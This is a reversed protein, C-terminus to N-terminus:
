RDVGASCTLLLSAYPMMLFHAFSGFPNIIQQSWFFHCALTCGANDLVCQPLTTSLVMHCYHMIPNHHIITPCQLVFCFIPNESFISINIMFKHSSKHFIIILEQCFNLGPIKKITFFCRFLYHKRKGNSLTQKGKSFSKPHVLSGKLHKKKKKLEPSPGPLGLEGVVSICGM